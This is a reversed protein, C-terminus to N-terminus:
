KKLSRGKFDSPKWIGEYGTSVPLPPEVGEYAIFGGKMRLVDFFGLRELRNSAPGSLDELDDAAMGARGGSRCVIIITDTAPDFNRYVEEDFFENLNAVLNGADDRYYYFYEDSARDFEFKWFPINEIKGDPVDPHGVFKYEAVTRVDLLYADPDAQVLTYADDPSIDVWASATTTGGLVLAMAVLSIFSKKMKSVKVVLVNIREAISSFDEVARGACDM